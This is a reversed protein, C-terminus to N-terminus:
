PAAPLLRLEPYGANALILGLATPAIYKYFVLEWHFGLGMRPPMNQSDNRASKSFTVMGELSPYEINSEGSLM